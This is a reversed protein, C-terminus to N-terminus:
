RGKGGVLDLSLNRVGGAVKGDFLIKGRNLVLLHRGLEEVAHFDHTSLIVTREGDQLANLTQVLRASSLLDLGSFPEDLILLKPDHLLARAIALRQEMGRSFGGTRDARRDWLGMLELVERTRGPVDEIGYLRGYFALNELATMGPYLFSAHSLFGTARRVDADSRVPRGDLSVQGTTPRIRGALIGLLTSKGAGNPGLLVVSTGSAVNLDLSDLARVPGFRKSVGKAQLYSGM